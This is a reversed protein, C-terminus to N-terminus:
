FDIVYNTVTLGAELGTLIFYSRGSGVFMASQPYDLRNNEEDLFLLGRNLGGNHVPSFTGQLFVICVGPPNPVGTAPVIVNDLSTDITQDMFVPTEITSQSTEWKVICPQGATLSTLADGCKFTLTKSDQDFSASELSKVTAGELPTGAFSALAFPLCLMNYRGDRYLPHGDLAVRYAKKGKYHLLMDGNSVDSKIVLDIYRYRATFNVDGSVTYETNTGLLTESGNTLFTTLGDPTSVLWGAFEMYDPDNQAPPKPLNFFTGPAMMSTVPADYQGDSGGIVPLYVNVSYADEGHIGCVTCIGGDFTHLEPGFATLCHPCHRTHTDSPGAGSVTYNVDEHSCPEVRVMTRYWCANRREAATFSEAYHSGAHVMLGGDLSLSGYDSAGYGPGVARHGTANEGANAVVTGSRITVDAGKGDEGGGIGAGHSKGQAFVYGGDIVVTGGSGGEGGGIGAADEGGYAEVHGGYIYVHHGGISDGGGIGAGYQDGRAIVNGGYIYIIAKGPDDDFFSDGQGCGIGAGETGANATIHGGYINIHGASNKFGGGIGSAGHEGGGTATVAGGFIQINGFDTCGYGGGIGAANISGEATVTGGYIAVFAGNASYCPGIGPSNPNGIAYIVGGHINVAGTCGERVNGIGPMLEAYIDSANSTLKGSDGVQGYINLINMPTNQAVYTIGQTHLHAGDKLIINCEGQVYVTKYKVEGEVVYYGPTLTRNDSHHDGQLTTYSGATLTRVEAAVKNEVANWSRKIYKVDGEPIAQDQLCADTGSLGITQYASLDAKYISLEEATYSHGSTFVGTQEMSIGMTGTLADTVSIVKGSALYINDKLGSFKENGSVTVTGGMNLTGESYIGGGQGVVKNGTFSCGDGVTLTAGANNRIAGGRTGKCGSIAVGTLSTTGKNVIAGANHTANTTVSNDADALTGNAMTLNGEPAVIFLCKYDGSVTVPANNGRLTHGGLNISAAYDVTAHRSLEFDAGVMIDPNKAQLAARLEAENMVVNTETLSVTIKYYKGALLTVGARSRTYTKGGSSASLYLTKSSLAPLAVYLVGTTVSPKVTFTRNEVTIIFSSVELSNEGNKVTFEVIAQQNQFSAPTTTVSSGSVAQVTVQATAYDCVKDISTDFGRLTGDQQAYDPSLFKLTLLDGVSLDGTITGSLTTSSGAEKASLTGLYVEGKYVTVEEGVAWRAELKGDNINLAKTDPREGKGAKVTLTYTLTQERAPQEPQVPQEMEKACSLLLACVMLLSITRKM